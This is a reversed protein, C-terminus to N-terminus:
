PEEKTARRAARHAKFDEGNGGGAACRGSNADRDNRDSGHQAFSISLILVFGYSFTYRVCFEFSLFVLRRRQRVYREHFDACSQEAAHAAEEAALAAGESAFSALLACLQLKAYVARTHEAERAVHSERATGHAACERELAVSLEDARQKQAMADNVAHSLAAEKEGMKEALTTTQAKLLEERGLAADREREVGVVERAHTAAVAAVSETVATAREDRQQELVGCAERFRRADDRASARAASADSLQTEVEEIRSQLLAVHQRSQDREITLQKVNVDSLEVAHELQVKERADEVNQTRATELRLRMKELAVEAEEEVRKRTSALERDVEARMADSRTHQAALHAEAERAQAEVQQTLAAHENSLPRYKSLLTTHEAQLTALAEARDAVERAKADAEAAHREALARQELADQARLEELRAAAAEYQERLGEEKVVRQSLMEVRERLARAETTAHEVRVTLTSEQEQTADREASVRSLEVRLDTAKRELAARRQQESELVSKADVSAQLARVSEAKASELATEVRAREERQAFERAQLEMREAAFALQAEQARQVVAQEREAHQRAEGRVEDRASELEGNDRRLREERQLAEDRERELRRVAERDRSASYRQLMASERPAGGHESGADSRDDGDSSYISDFGTATVREALVLASSRATTPREVDVVGGDFGSSDDLRHDGSRKHRRRGRGRHRRRRATVRAEIVEDDSISVSSGDSGSVEGDDEGTGAEDSLVKAAAGLLSSPVGFAPMVNEKSLLQPVPAEKLRQMLSANNRRIRDLASTTPTSM